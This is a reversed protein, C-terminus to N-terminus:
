DSDLLEELTSVVNSWTASSTDVISFHDGPAELLRADQGVAQAAAVYDVSQAFPVHEDRRAHVCRVKAKIPIRSLPDALAYQEPLEEPRGGMFNITAGHGIKERAATRLDVVGALSIVGAIEVVPGAGPAGVPLESRGAAWTALHGGASHGLTAVRQTDVVKMTALHDIAAAVDQLTTPYGGGIGLRRYEVNWTLWGRRALDVAVAYLHDSGYMSGWFGGHLVVIVGPRRPGAPQHLDAFQSPDSGYFFREPKPENEVTVM